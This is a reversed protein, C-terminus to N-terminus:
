QCQELWKRFQEGGGFYVTTWKNGKKDTREKISEEEGMKEQITASCGKEESVM